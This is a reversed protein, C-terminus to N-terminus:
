FGALKLVYDVCREMDELMVYEEKSHVKMMGTSIKLTQGGRQAFIQADSGAGTKGLSFELGAKQAASRAYSVIAADEKTYFGDCDNKVDIECKIGTRASFGECTKVMENLVPGAQGDQALVGGKIITLDPVTNPNQPAYISQVNVFCGDSVRGKPLAALLEGAAVVANVGNNGSAHSMKGYVKIGFSDQSAGRNVTYGVPVGGSDVVFTYAGLFHREDLHKAGLFGDEECTTFVFHVDEPIGGTDRMRAMAELLVAVGSKDDIGLVGGGKASVRGNERLVNKREYIYVSDMHACFCIRARGQAATILNGCDCGTVSASADECCEIDLGSLFSKIIDAAPKENFSPSHANLLDEFVRYMREISM